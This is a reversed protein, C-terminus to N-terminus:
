PRRGPGPNGRGGRRHCERSSGTSMKFVGGVTVQNGGFAHGVFAGQAANFGFTAGEPLAGAIARRLTLIPRARWHGRLSWRGYM